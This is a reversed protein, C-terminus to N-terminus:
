PAPSDMGQTNLSNIEGGRRRRPGAPTATGAPSTAQAPSVPLSHLRLPRPVQSSRQRHWKKVTFRTSTMLRPPAQFSLNFLGDGAPQCTLYVMDLAPEM